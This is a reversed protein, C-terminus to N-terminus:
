QKFKSKKPAGKSKVVLPDIVYDDDLNCNCPNEGRKQLKTITNVIGNMAEVFDSSNKCAVDMLRSCEVGLVGLRCKLVMDSDSPDDVNSKMFDSKDNKTWRKCVLHEPTVEVHQHKLYAFIHMCPIGQNKFWLCECRLMGGVRDFEVVHDIEPMRFSNCKLYLKEGDQIVLEINMACAGEIEKRVDRFMNRTFTKAAFGELTPLSTVLVPDTYKSNFEAVRENNRYHSIVTEINNIFELLTDKKRVYVKILSNIEECQSTTRIRGFFQNSLYALAWLNRLEYTQDVWSSSSLNYRAVMDGWMVEFQEVSVNDYILKKFDNLFGSNKVKECANRHLHWACLRHTAYPFVQKIAERMSLDRDTVVAMPHKNGMAELFIELLWKYLDIDENVLLGCGFIITHGHHNSGSFIVLPNNYVNRNYTSDFTLVDGFCEYDIRITGDAWFLNELRNENSLTYKGFFYSDNGAKGRLYSIAANADGGKVKEKRHQTILNYM